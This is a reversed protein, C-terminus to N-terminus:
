KVPGAKWIQHGYDKNFPLLSKEKLDRSRFTIVGIAAQNTEISAVGKYQVQQGFKTTM